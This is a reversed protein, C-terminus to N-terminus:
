DHETYFGNIISDIYKTLDLETLKKVVYDKTPYSTFCEKVSLQQLVIMIGEERGTQFYSLTRNM